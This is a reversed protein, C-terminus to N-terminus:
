EEQALLEYSDYRVQQALDDFSILSGPVPHNNVDVDAV